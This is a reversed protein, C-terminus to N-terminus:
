LFSCKCPGCFDSHPISVDLTLHNVSSVRFSFCRHRGCTKVDMLVVSLKPSLFILHEIIYTFLVHSVMHDLGKLGIAHQDVHGDLLGTCLEKLPDATWTGVSSDDMDDDSSAGESVERSPAAPLESMDFSVLPAM